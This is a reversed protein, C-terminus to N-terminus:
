PLTMLYTVALFTDSVSVKMLTRHRRPTRISLDMFKEKLYKKMRASCSGGDAHSLIATALQEMVTIEIRGFPLTETSVSPSAPNMGVFSIIVNLQPLLLLIEHSAVMTHDNM